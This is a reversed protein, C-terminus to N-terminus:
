ANLVNTLLAKVTPVDAPAWELSTLDQLPVWKLEAHEKAKPEGEAIKAKYTLLHVIVDPYEYHVEEMKEDVKITCGLEEFIERSLTEEPKEGEEMKGGPFEWVNPLTMQPSRLACLIRNQEDEIVAGIVRVTKKM